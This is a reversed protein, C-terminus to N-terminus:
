VRGDPEASSPEVSGARSRREADERAVELLGAVLLHAGSGVGFTWYRRFWRRAHEDTTATRMLGSLLTRREGLPRVSLSYVTKAYGPEDFAEFGDRDVEAYEIVPRWFRGVLGLAIEECAREGLLTWGGDGLPMGAIEHLTMPQRPAVPLHGDLVQSVVDPLARLAGLLSVLPKRRGVEILDVALLARWTTELDAEVVVAVADSVDYAPLFQEVFTTEAETVPAYM